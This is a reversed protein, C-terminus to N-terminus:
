RPLWFRSLTCASIVNMREQALPLGQQDRFCGLGWEGLAPEALGSGQLLCFISAFVDVSTSANAEIGNGPHSPPLAGASGRSQRVRVVGVGVLGRIPHPGLTPDSGRGDEGEGCGSAFVVM